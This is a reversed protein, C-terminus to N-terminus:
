EFFPQEIKLQAGGEGIELRCRGSRREGDLALDLPEAIDRNLVVVDGVALSAVEPLPLECDGVRASLTVPQRALGESLPRLVLPTPASRASRRIMAVFLDAGVLMEVAHSGTRPGIACLRADRVLDAAPEAQRWATDRPLGVLQALRSRLDDLCGAALSDILDRDAASLGKEAIAADLMAEVVGIAAGAATRLALGEELLQWREGKGAAPAEIAAFAAVIRMPRRAFWKASWEDVTAALMQEVLGTDLATAPLWTKWVHTGM